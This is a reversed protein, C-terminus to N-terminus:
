FGYHKQKVLAIFCNGIRSYLILHPTILKKTKHPIPYSPESRERKTPRQPVGLSLM